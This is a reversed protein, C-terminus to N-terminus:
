LSDLTLKPGPANSLVLGLIIRCMSNIMSFYLDHDGQMMFTRM